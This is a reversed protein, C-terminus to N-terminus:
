GPLKSAQGGGGAQMLNMGMPELLESALKMAGPGLGGVMVDTTAQSLGSGAPARLAPSTTSAVQGAHARLAYALASGDFRHASARLSSSASPGAGAPLPRRSLGPLLERPVPRKLDDLMNHIPTVGAIPEVNFFWGYAYA